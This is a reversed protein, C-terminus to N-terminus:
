GDIKFGRECKIQSGNLEKLAKDINLTLKKAEYPHKSLDSKWSANVGWLECFNKCDM